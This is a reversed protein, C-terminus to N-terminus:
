LGYILHSYVTSGDSPFGNEGAFIKEHLVTGM